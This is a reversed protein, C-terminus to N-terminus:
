QNAREDSNLEELLAKVDSDYKYKKLKENLSSIIKKDSWEGCKEMHSEAVISIDQQDLNLKKKFNFLELKIDKM